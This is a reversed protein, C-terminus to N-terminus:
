YEMIKLPIIFFSSSNSGFDLLKIGKLSGVTENIWNMRKEVDYDEAVHMVQDQYYDKLQTETPPKTNWIHGCNDCYYPLHTFKTKKNTISTTSSQELDFTEIFKFTKKAKCCPCKYHNKM